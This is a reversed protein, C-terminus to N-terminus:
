STGALELYMITTHWQPNTNNRLCGWSSSPYSIYPAEPLLSIHYSSLVTIWALCSSLLSPPSFHYSEPYIKFISSVLNARLNSISYPFFLPALFSKPELLQFPQIAMLQSPLLSYLFLNPSSILPRTKLMQLEQSLQCIDGPIQPHDHVQLDATSKSCFIRFYPPRIICATSSACYVSACGLCLPHLSAREESQKGQASHMFSFQLPDGPKKSLLVFYLRPQCWIAAWTNDLLPISWGSLAQPM